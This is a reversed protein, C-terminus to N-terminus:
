LHIARFQKASSDMEFLASLFQFYQMSEAM